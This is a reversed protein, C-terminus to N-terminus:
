LLPKAVELLDKFNEFFKDRLEKNPFALITNWVYKVEKEIVEMANHITYKPQDNNKWDPQWGDNYAERLQLLQALALAAEALEKTPFVDKAQVTTLEEYKQIENDLNIYYGKVNKLEKWSTPLEKEVKKFKILEFTSNEEDIVYGEPINIKVQKEKPM